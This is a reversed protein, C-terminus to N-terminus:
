GFVEYALKRYAMFARVGILVMLVQRMWIRVTDVAMFAGYYQPYHDAMVAPCTSIFFGWEDDFYDLSFVTSWCVQEGTLTDLIDYASGEPAQMITTATEDAASAAAASATEDVEPSPLLTGAPDYEEEDGGEAFAEFSEKLGETAERIDDFKEGHEGLAEVIDECCECEGPPETGCEPYL